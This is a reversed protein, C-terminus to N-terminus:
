FLGNAVLYDQRKKLLKDIWDMNLHTYVIIGNGARENYVGRLWYVDRVDRDSRTGRYRCQLGSGFEILDYIERDARACSQYKPNFGKVQSVCEAETLLKVDFWHPTKRAGGWGTVVCNDYDFVRLGEPM